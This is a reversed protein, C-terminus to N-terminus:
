FRYRTPQNTSEEQPIGFGVVPTMEWLEYSATTRTLPGFPAEFGGDIATVPWGHGNFVEALRQVTAPDTIRKAEGEVVLDFGKLNVTVVCQPNQALNQRKRAGQSTAFFFAGNNWTPWFPVAHPRGDPRVTSLTPTATPGPDTMLARVTAWPNVVADEGEVEVLFEAVPEKETM